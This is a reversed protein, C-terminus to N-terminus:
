QPWKKLPLVFAVKEFRTESIKRHEQFQKGHQWRACVLSGRQWNGNCWADHMEDGQREFEEVVKQRAESLPLELVERILDATDPEKQQAAAGGQKPM